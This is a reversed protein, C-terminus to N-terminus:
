QSSAPNAVPPASGPVMLSQARGIAQTAAAPPAGPTTPDAGMGTAASPAAPIPAPAAAAPAPAGAPAAPMNAFTAGPATAPSLTGGMDNLVAKAEDGIKQGETRPAADVLPPLDTAAAISGEFIAFRGSDFTENPRLAFTVVGTQTDFIANDKGVRKNRLAGVPAFKNLQRRTLLAKVFAPRWEFRAMEPAIGTVLVEGTNTKPTIRKGALFVTWDSASHYVISGLYFVPYPNPEEIKPAAASSVPLVTLATPSATEPQHTEAATLAQKMADVQPATFLLSSSQDGFSLGPMDFPSKKAADDPKATDPAPAQAAADVAPLAGPATAPLAVAPPAAAASPPPLAGAPPTAAPLPAGAHVPAGPPGVAQAFATGCLCASLLLAARLTRM